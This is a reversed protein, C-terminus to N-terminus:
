RKLKDALTSYLATLNILFVHADEMLGDIPTQDAGGSELLIERYIKHVTRHGSIQSAETQMTKRILYRFSPKARGASEKKPGFYIKYREEAASSGILRPDPGGPKLFGNKKLWPSLDALVQKSEAVSLKLHGLLHGGVYVKLIDKFTYQRAYGSQMGGLPDPPLFSRSWRKWKALNVELLKSLERNTYYHIM